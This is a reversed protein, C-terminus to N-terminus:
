DARTFRVGRSGFPLVLAERGALMWALFELAQPLRPASAAPPAAVAFDLEFGSRAGGSTVFSRHGARVLATLRSVAFLYDDYSECRYARQPPPPYLVEARVGKLM